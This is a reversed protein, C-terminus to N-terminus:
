HTASTAPAVRVPMSRVGRMVLTDMYQVAPVALELGPFRRIVEAIAIQGELRALPAGLCYHPGVNFTLHPNPDRTIDFEDPEDFRRPDFNAANVMVFVRDGAKLQRGHFEHDRRVVRVLAGTPGDYRLMEELASPLLQPERVLRERADSFRILARVGNGLMNTTTEHGGFLFLMCTGIVEDETLMEQEDRIALLKSIMDSGPSHERARIVDRFYESMKVAGEQALSYKEPSTTAGGIFLQMKNSWDRVDDMDSLPLGLMAMIVTAPMPFAFDSIFDFERQGELRDLLQAVSDEIVPRLSEVERMTFVLGMLKRLRSHEPPDKFAVWTNVYRILEAIRRQQTDPLSEYFPMLRNASMGRNIQVARVDDYRTIVWGRLVDSWHVPDEDQLRRLVPVPNQITQPDRPDYLTTMAHGDTPIRQRLM